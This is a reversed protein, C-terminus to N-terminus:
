YFFFYFQALAQSLVCIIITFMYKSYVFFGFAAITLLISGFGIVMYSAAIDVTISQPIFPSELQYKTQFFSVFCFATRLLNIFILAVAWKRVIPTPETQQM